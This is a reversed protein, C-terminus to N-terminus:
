LVFGYAMTFFAIFSQFFFKADRWHPTWTATSELEIESAERTTLSEAELERTDFVHPPLSRRFPHGASETTLVLARRKM